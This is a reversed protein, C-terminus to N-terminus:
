MQCTYLLVILSFNTLSRVVAVALQRDFESSKPDDEGHFKTCIWVFPLFCPHLDSTPIHQRIASSVFVKGSRCHCTSNYTSTPSLYWTHVCLNIALTFISVVRELEPLFIHERERRCLFFLLNARLKTQGSLSIPALLPCTSRLRRSKRNASSHPRPAPSERGRPPFTNKARRGGQNSYFTNM